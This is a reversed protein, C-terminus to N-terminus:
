KFSNKDVSFIQHPLNYIFWPFKCVAVRNEVLSSYGIRIVLNVLHVFERRCNNQMPIQGYITAVSICEMCMVAPTGVEVAALLPTRHSSGESHTNQLM